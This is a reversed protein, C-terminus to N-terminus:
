AFYKLFEKYAKLGWRRPEIVRLYDFRYTPSSHMLNVTSLLNKDTLLKVRNRLIARTVYECRHRENNAITCKNMDAKVHESFLEFPNNAIYETLEMENVPIIKKWITYAGNRPCDKQAPTNFETSVNGSWAIEWNDKFRSDTVLSSYACLWHGHLEILDPSIYNVLYDISLHADNKVLKSLFPDGILGLDVNIIKKSFSVKGLDPNAVIPLPNKTFSSNFIQNSNSLIIKDSPSINCCLDRETDFKNILIAIPIVAFVVFWRFKQLNFNFLNNKQIIWFYTLCIPVVFASVIRFASLRAPGFM